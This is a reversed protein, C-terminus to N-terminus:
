NYQKVRSRKLATTMQEYINDEGITGGQIALDDAYAIMQVMSGLDLQLLRNIVMNFLTPSLSSGQPTGYTLHNIKSKMGQFLVTGTRNTLYDGLWVLLQGRIGLLAASELVVKNSVLEIAKELDMFITASRSKYGRRFTTIPAAKHLLTAIADITGVRSRFGLSYPNILQASWKVRALVLREMVKSLAPLLSIPRHTKDKPPILVIKAIKWRTPLRGESFSQNILRLFLHKTALPVSKIMSYCVTDDGPATDKLSRICLFLFIKKKKYLCYILLFM